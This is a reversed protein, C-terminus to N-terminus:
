TQLNNQDHKFFPANASCRYPSILTTTSATLKHDRALRMRNIIYLLESLLDPKEVSLHDRDALRLFLDSPTKVSVLAQNLLDACLFALAKVEDRSLAKGVELLVKQFDM